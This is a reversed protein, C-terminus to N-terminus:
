QWSPVRDHSPRGNSTNYAIDWYPLWALAVLEVQVDVRRPKIEYTDIDDVAEEWEQSISAVQEAIDEHVDEIDDDLRAIERISEDIDAKAKSTM